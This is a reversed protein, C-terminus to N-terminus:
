CVLIGRLIQNKFNRISYLVYIYMYINVCLQDENNSNMNIFKSVQWFKNTDRFDICYGLILVIASEYDNASQATAFIKLLGAPMLSTNSQRREARM